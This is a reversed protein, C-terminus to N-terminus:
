EKLLKYCKAVFDRFQDPTLCDFDVQMDEKGNYSGCLTFYYEEEGEVIGKQILFDMDQSSNVAKLKIRTEKHDKM